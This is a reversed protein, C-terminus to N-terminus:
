ARSKGVLCRHLEAVVWEIDDDRLEPYMPLSLTQRYYERTGPLNNILSGYLRLYYPQLPLPIYHVQTNIGVDHLSNMLRGRDVGFRAYDVLVVSLHNAHRGHEYELLPIVGEDGFASRLLGRYVRALESRRRLCADLRALQSLGLAAQIDTLRYNYGLETMEYYWPNTNGDPSRALDLNVFQDRTVGHSRLRRLRAALARDNTTVAGGEGTTIHKAPHFSFVTMYSRACSGVKVESGDAQYTAGLAHCADEILALGRAQAIDHIACMDLPRGAFHVPILARVRRGRNSDLCSVLTDPSIAGTVPDVDAFLVDAGVMRVCNASSLFSNASTVVTDNPGLGLALVALHLAATGSSCAVAYEAGVAQALESEFREVVPGQTLYDSQLVEQVAAIDDATVFHRTYQLCRSKVADAAGRM